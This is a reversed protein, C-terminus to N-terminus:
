SWEDEPEKPVHYQTDPLQRNLEHSSARGGSQLEQSNETTWNALLDSFDPPNSTGLMCVSHTPTPETWFSPPLRRKCMPLIHGLRKDEKHKWGHESGESPGVYRRLGYDFLEALPGLRQANEQNCLEQLARSDSDVGPSAHPSGISDKREGEHGASLGVTAQAMKVLDAYYRERGCKGLFARDEYIDCADPDEDRSKRGFYRQIDSSILNAFHLLRHTTETPSNVPSPHRWEEGDEDAHCSLCEGEELGEEEVDQVDEEDEEEDETLDSHFNVPCYFAERFDTVNRIVGAAMNQPRKNVTRTCKGMCSVSKGM